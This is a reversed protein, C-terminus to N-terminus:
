KRVQTHGLVARKDICTFMLQISLQQLIFANKLLVIFKDHVDM